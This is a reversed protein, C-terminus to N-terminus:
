IMWKLIFSYKFHNRMDKLRLGHGHMDTLSLMKGGSINRLINTIAQGVQLNKCKAGVAMGIVPALTNITPKLFSKWAKRSGKFMKKQTNKLGDGEMQFQRPTFTIQKQCNSKPNHCMDHLNLATCDKNLDCWASNSMVSPHGHKCKGNKIFNKARTM